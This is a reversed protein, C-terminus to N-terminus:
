QPISAAVDIVRGLFNIVTQESKSALEVFDALV